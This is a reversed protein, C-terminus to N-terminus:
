AASHVRNVMRVTATFLSLPSSTTASDSPGSFRDALSLFRAARLFVGVDENNRAALNSLVLFRHCLHDSPLKMKFSWFFRGSPRNEKYAKSKPSLIPKMIKIQRMHRM